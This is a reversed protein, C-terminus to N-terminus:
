LVDEIWKNDEKIKMKEEETFSETVGFIQFIEEQSKDKCLSAIKACTLDLLCPIDMFNAACSLEVVDELSLNEIFKASWEDTDEFLNISKLPKEIEPPAIGKFHNLYEVVLALMKAEVENISLNVENFDQCMNKILVSLEAYQKCIKFDQGDKSKLNLDNM